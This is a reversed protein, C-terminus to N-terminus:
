LFLIMCEATKWIFNKLHKRILQANKADFIEKAEEYVSKSEVQNNWYSNLYSDQEDGLYPDVGTYSNIELFDEPLMSICKAKFVGIELIDIKRTKFHEKVVNWFEDRGTELDYCPLNYIDKRM